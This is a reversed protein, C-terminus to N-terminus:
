SGQMDWCKKILIDKIVSLFAPVEQLEIKFIYVNKFKYVLKSQM